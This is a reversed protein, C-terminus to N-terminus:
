KEFITMLESTVFNHIRGNTAVINGTELCNENPHFGTVMGGAERVLLVGAAIDWAGLELEWFADFRGCAVYALDIAAVGMRRMDRASEFFRRFAQLYPEIKEKSRFPFGTAFLCDKVEDAFSVSIPSNNLFAGRGKQATYMERQVPDYVVGAVLEDGRAVAISVAFLRVNHLYNTTGDLPDIIWRYIGDGPIEGREEALIQHQPFHRKIHEIIAQESAHDVLTAYDSAGKEELEYHKVRSLHTLLVEGGLQAAQIAVKLIEQQVKEEGNIDFQM